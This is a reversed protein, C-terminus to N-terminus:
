SAFKYILVRGKSTTKYGEIEVEESHVMKHHKKCLCVLNDKHNMHIDGIMGHENARHRELIHHTELDETSNCIQCADVLKKANYKSKKSNNILTLKESKGLEASRRKLATNVIDQPFGLFEAIELGYLSSGSGPKLKREYILTKNEKDHQVELHVSKVNKIGLYYECTQLKHMHTSFVFLSRKKVLSEISATILHRASEPETGQLLEDALVLTKNDARLLINKLERMEHIGTSIGKHLNDKSVIRTFIKQFISFSFSTAPTPLGSQALIIAIGTAKMLTSKGASNIGHLLLGQTYPSNQLTIEEDINKNELHKRKGLFLDNSIYIGSEQISEVIPHRLKEAEIFSNKAKKIQPICYSKTNILNVNNMYFDIKSVYLSLSKLLSSYGDLNRIFFEFFDKSLSQLPWSNVSLPYGDIKYHITNGTKENEKLKFLSLQDCIDEFEEKKIALKSCNINLNIDFPSLSSINFYQSSYKIEKEQIVLSSFSIEPLSLFKLITNLETQFLTLTKEYNEQHFIYSKKKKAFLTQLGSEELKLDEKNLWAFLNDLKDIEFKTKLKCDEKHHVYSEKKSDFLDYAAFNDLENKNFFSMLNKQTNEKTEEIGKFDILSDLKDIFSNLHDTQIGSLNLSSKGDQTQMINEDIEKILKISNYVKILDFLDANGIQVKRWLREIDYIKKLRKIIEDQNLLAALKTNNHDELIKEEKLSPMLVKQNLYRRGLATSCKNVISLVDLKDHSLINLQSIAENGLHMISNDDILKPKSLKKAISLDESDIYSLLMTLANTAFLLRELDLAEISSLMSEPSYAGKLLENQFSNKLVAEKKNLYTVKIDEELLNDISPIFDEPGHIVLEKAKYRNINEFIAEIAADPDEKTGQAEYVLSDGISVDIFSLGGYSVGENNKELYVSAIFNSKDNNLYEFNTGPTIIKDIFRNKKYKQTIVIISWINEAILAELNKDLSILPIGCQEPNGISLEKNKNKRTKTLNLIKSIEDTKGINNLQYIEYFTGVQSLVVTNEGYKKEFHKQIEFYRQIFPTKHDNLLKKIM